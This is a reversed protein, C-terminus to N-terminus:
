GRHRGEEEEPASSRGQLVQGGRRRVQMEEKQLQVEEQRVQGRKRRLLVWFCPPSRLHKVLTFLMWCRSSQGWVLDVVMQITPSCVSSPTCRSTLNILRPQQLLSIISMYFHTPYVLPYHRVEQRSRFCLASKLLSLLQFFYLSVLQQETPLISVEYEQCPLITSWYLM